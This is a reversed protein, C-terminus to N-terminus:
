HRGSVDLARILGVGQLRNSLADSNKSPPFAVHNPISDFHPGRELAADQLLDDGNDTLGDTIYKFSVHLIRGVSEHTVARVSKCM